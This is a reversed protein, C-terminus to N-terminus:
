RGSILGLTFGPAPDGVRVPELTEFRPEAMKAELSRRRAVM